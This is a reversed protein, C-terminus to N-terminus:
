NYNKINFYKRIQIHIKKKISSDFASFILIGVIFHIIVFSFINAKEGIYYIFVIGLIGLIVQGFLLLYNFGIYWLKESILISAIIWVLYSISNAIAAGLIGYKPVLVYNLLINLVGALIITISTIYTKESKWIGVAGILYFGYFLSQFAMIGVIKYGSHYASATLLKILWPSIFALYVVAATGFGLYFRSLTKFILVGDESHMSEMAIPWWAKRFMEVVFAILITFKASISFIGLLEQGHYYRIFWRDTSNMIFLGLEAPLLPLGFKILKPWLSRTTKNFKVFSRAFYWGIIAILFAAVFTGLFYGTIGLNIFKVFFLTLMIAIVSNLLSMLIFTWAKYQLRFVELSQNMIVSFFAGAFSIEFYILNLKHNFFYLNILPSACGVLIVILGGWLLRWLLVSSIVRIQAERSVKKQEFFYFSQASDLGLSLIASLISAIVTVSEIDGYQSPSFIKTYLPLLFFSLGKSLTGGLGYILSDKSLQKLRSL